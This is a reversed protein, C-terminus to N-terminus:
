MATGILSDLLKKAAPANDKITVGLLIRDAEHMAAGDKALKKKWFDDGPNYYNFEAKTDGKTAAVRISLMASKTQTSGSIKWGAKEFAAKVDDAQWDQLPKEVKSATM